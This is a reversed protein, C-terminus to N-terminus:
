GGRSDRLASAGACAPVPRSGAALAEDFTLEADFFFASNSGPRDDDTHNWFALATWGDRHTLTAVGDVDAHPILEGDIRHWPGSWAYRFSDGDGSYKVTRWSEDRLYHGPRGYTGFYYASM